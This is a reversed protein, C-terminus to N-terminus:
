HSAEQEQSTHKGLANQELTDERRVFLARNGLAFSINEDSFRKLIKYILSQQRDMYKTQDPDTVWFVLEYRLSSDTFNALHCREFRLLDEEKVFNEIWAPVQRLKEIPTFYSLDFNLVARRERMRKFNKVRSELLDKNAFILEEGSLSRVRTTKIGITEVTGMENGAVIFDGVVFPKDLVISLSGFLDGLINQAALAVAIGGIGMGAILATIDVGLNSLCMLVLAAIFLGQIATSMLGVASASSADKEIKKQLYQTKWTTISNLGWIAVQFGSLVVFAFFVARKGPRPAESSQILAHLIWIFISWTKTSAICTILIDDSVGRFHFSIKRFRTEIFKLIMKILLAGAVALGVMLAWGLPTGLNIEELLGNEIQELM